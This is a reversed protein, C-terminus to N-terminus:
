ATGRKRMARSIRDIDAQTAEQLVVVDDTTGSRANERKEPIRDASENLYDQFKSGFLTSPRLYHKFKPDQSWHRFKKDIVTKFDDVTFGDDLREVILDAIDKTPRYRSGTVSNLHEIIQEIKAAYESHDERARTNNSETPSVTDNDTDNDTVTDSNMQLVNTDAQIVQTDNQIQHTDERKKDWRKQIADKRKQVTEDYKEADKDLQPAIMAFVGAAMPDSIDYDMGLKKCCIAKIIQGAQEEPINAFLTAWNEYIIFSKKENAM